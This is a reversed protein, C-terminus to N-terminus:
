RRDVGIAFRWAWFAFLAAPVLVATEVARSASWQSTVSYFIVVFVFWLLLFAGCAFSAWAWWALKTM